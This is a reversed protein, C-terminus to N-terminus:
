KVEASDLNRVMSYLSQFIIDKGVKLRLELERNYVLVIKPPVKHLRQFRFVNEDRQNNEELGKTWWSTILRGSLYLFEDIIYFM